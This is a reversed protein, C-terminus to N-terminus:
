HYDVFNVDVADGDEFRFVLRWNARVTVAWEGKRAGKLAHLRFSPRDLEEIAQAADIAALLVRIRDVMDPPLKSRDGREFLRKLGRHKFGLIM